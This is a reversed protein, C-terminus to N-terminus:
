EKATMFYKVEVSQRLYSMVNVIRSQIHYVIRSMQNIENM